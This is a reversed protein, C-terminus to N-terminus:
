GNHNIYVLSRRFIMFLKELTTPYKNKPEFYKRDKLIVCTQGPKLSELVIEGEDNAKMKGGKSNYLVEDPHVLVTVGDVNVSNFNTLFLANEHVMLRVKKMVLLRDLITSAPVFWGDKQQTLYEIRSKFTENLKGNRVFSHFHLYVISTGREKVLRQVNKKSLLRNFIDVDFGDSFSFWYNVYPKQPDHYPMGPNFKLTNIDSTGWLRVYKTKQKLIDGWFYKSQVIEGSYPYNARDAFIGILFRILANDAVKKGWYINELNTSHMINIKPYAGFYDKFKEYGKITEERYDNGSSVGHM